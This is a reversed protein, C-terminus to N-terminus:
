AVKHAWVNWHGQVAVFLRLVASLSVPVVRAPRVELRM